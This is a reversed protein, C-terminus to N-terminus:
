ASVLAKHKKIKPEGAVRLLTSDCYRAPVGFYTYTADKLMDSVDDQASGGTIIGVPEISKACWDGNDDHNIVFRIHKGPLANVSRQMEDIAQCKTPDTEFGLKRLALSLRYEASYKM